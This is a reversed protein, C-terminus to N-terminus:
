SKPEEAAFHGYVSLIMRLGLIPAAWAFFL